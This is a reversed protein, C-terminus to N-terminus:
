AASYATLRVPVANRRTLSAAGGLLNRRRGGSREKTGKQKVGKVIATM